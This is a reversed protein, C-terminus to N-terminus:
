ANPELAPLDEVPTSLRLREVIRGCDAIQPSESGSGKVYDLLAGLLQAVVHDPERSWFARLRNAKSGSGSNYASDFIEKGTADIIFASFTRNSFDLVYGSDMGLLKEFRRKEIATMSSM